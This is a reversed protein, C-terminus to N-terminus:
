PPHAPHLHIFPITSKEVFRHGFADAAKFARWIIRETMPQLLRADGEDVEM